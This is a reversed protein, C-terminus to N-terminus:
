RSATKRQTESQIWRCERLRSRVRTIAQAHLQCARSETVELVAGVEKLNMNREYYLSMLVRERDPLSDIAAIVADRLRADSLVELPGHHDVCIKDLWPEEETSEFDEYYVLQCGHLDYLLAQYETLPMSLLEAVERETPPRHLTQELKQIAAEVTRSTKRMSRTMWDTGRLEDIMAGRIRAGAYTEFQVGEQPDYRTAADLLGMLGAQILDNLEVNAPMKAVIMLGIRRVLPAYERVVEDVRRKGSQDYM